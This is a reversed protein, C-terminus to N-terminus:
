KDELEADTRLLGEDEIKSAISAATRANVGNKELEMKLSQEAKRATKEARAGEIYTRILDDVFVRPPLEHEDSEAVAQFFPTKMEPITPVDSEISEGVSNLIDRYESYNPEESVFTWQGSPQKKKYVGEDPFSSSVSTVIEFARVIDDYLEEIVQEDTLDGDRSAALRYALKDRFERTLEHSNITFEGTIELTDTDGVDWEKVDDEFEISQLVYWLESSFHGTEANEYDM